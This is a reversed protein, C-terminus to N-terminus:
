IWSLLFVPLLFSGAVKSLWNIQANLVKSVAESMSNVQLKNYINRIHNHVTDYRIGLRASITKYSDGQIMLSLVEKERITLNYGSVRKPVNLNHLLEILKRLVFPSLLTEGQQLKMLAEPMNEGLQNKLLYGMAGACIADLIIEDEHSTGIMLIKVGPFTSHILKVAECPCIDSWAVDMLIVQPQFARIRQILRYSNKLTGGVSFGESASLLLSMSENLEDDSSLIVVRIDNLTTRESDRNGYRSSDLRLGAASKVDNKIPKM